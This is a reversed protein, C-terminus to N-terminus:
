NRYNRLGFYEPNQRALDGAAFIASRIADDDNPLTPMRGPLGWLGHKNADDSYVTQIGQKVLYDFRMLDKPAGIEALQYIAQETISRHAATDIEAALYYQVPPKGTAASDLAKQIETCGALITFFFGLLFLLFEKIM